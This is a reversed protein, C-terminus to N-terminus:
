RERRDEGGEGVRPIICREVPRHPSQISPLVTHTPHPSTATLLNTPRVFLPFSSSSQNKFWDQTWGGDEGDQKRWPWQCPCDLVREATQSQGDCHSLNRFLCSCALNQWLQTGAPPPTVTQCSRSMEHIKGLSGGLINIVCKLFLQWLLWCSWSKQDTWM